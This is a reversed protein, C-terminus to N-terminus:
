LGGRESLGSVFLRRATWRGAGHDSLSRAGAACGGALFLGPWPNRLDPPLGQPFWASLLELRPQRGIAILLQRGDWDPGAAFGLRLGQASEEIRTVRANKCVRLGRAHGEALLSPTAQLTPGRVFLSVEAEREALSLAYDLAAEGGGIVAARQGALNVPVRCLERHLGPAAPLPLPYPRPRTGSALIVTRAPLREAGYFVEYGLGSRGLADVHGYRIPVGLRKIQQRALRCWEQGSIAQPFGPANEIARASRLLGGPAEDTILTVRLGQRQAEIAAMLGAPGAGIIVGDLTTM